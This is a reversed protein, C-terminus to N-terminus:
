VAYVASETMKVSDGKRSMEKKVFEWEIIRYCRNLEAMWDNLKSEEKFGLHVTRSKEHPHSNVAELM